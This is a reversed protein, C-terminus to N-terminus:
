GSTRWRYWRRTRLTGIGWRRLLMSCMVLDHCAKANYRHTVKKHDMSNIISSPVENNAVAMVFDFRAIDEPNRIMRKIARLASGPLDAINTGDSPNSLWIIRTRASTEGQVIKNVVARGESRISSMNGLIDTDRGSVLGSMEDLVVLRRDNNPLLGWSIMWAKKDLSSNVAGGV